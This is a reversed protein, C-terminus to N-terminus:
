PMSPRERPSGRGDPLWLRGQLLAEFGRWAFNMLQLALVDAPVEPHRVAYAALSECAGLLAHAQLEIEESLDPTVGVDAAARVLLATLAAHVRARARAIQAATEPGQPPVQVVLAAWREREIAIFDFFARLGAWLQREPPEGPDVAEQVHKVLPEALRALCSVYLGEKSGFHTYLVPKTVGVAGAIEDMSVAQFGREGFLRSAVDVMQRERDVRPVTRRESM